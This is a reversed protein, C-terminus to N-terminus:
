IFFGMTGFRNPYWFRLYSRRLSVGTLWTRRQQWGDLAWDLWGHRGREEAAREVEAADEGGGRGGEGGRGGVAEEGGEGGGGGRRPLVRAGGDVERGVLAAAAEDVSGGEFTRSQSIKAAGGSEHRTQAACAPTGSCASPTGLAPGPAPRSPRAARGRWPHPLCGHGGALGRGRLNQETQDQGCGV